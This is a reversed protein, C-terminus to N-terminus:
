RLVDAVFEGIEKGLPLIVARLRNCRSCGSTTCATPMFGILVHGGVVGRERV